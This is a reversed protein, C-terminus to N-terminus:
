NAERPVGDPGWNCAEYYEAIMQNLALRDVKHGSAPGNPLPEEFFRSPLTDEKPTCGERLIFRRELTTIRDSIEELMKLSYVVGTAASLADPLSWQLAGTLFSCYSASDILIRSRASEKILKGKGKPDYTTGNVIEEKVPHGQSHHCAGRNAIAFVLAMGTSARPEYM